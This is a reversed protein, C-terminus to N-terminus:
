ASIVYDIDTIAGMFKEVMHRKDVKDVLRHSM